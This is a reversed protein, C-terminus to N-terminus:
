RIKRLLSSIGIKRVFPALTRDRFKEWNTMRGYKTECYVFGYQNYEKWFKKRNSPSTVNRTMCTQIAPALDTEICDLTNRIKDFLLKGKETNILLCSVGLADEFEPAVSKINWYDGITVDGTRSTKTFKCHYCSPRNILGKFFMTLFSTNLLIEGKRFFRLQYSKRWGLKKNRFSVNDMYGGLFEMLDGFVRPSPVSHCLIDIIYLNTYDKNLFCRLGECQCPTGTYLVLLGLELRDRIERFVNGQRSQVYKSGRLINLDINASIGRHDVSQAASSFSAGYVYGNRNIIYSAFATFLGGSTSNNRVDDDKHKVAYVFLPKDDTKKDEIWACVKSCRGCDICIAEDVKPYLFGEDDAQMSICDYPCIQQCASCGSCNNKKTNIANIHKM